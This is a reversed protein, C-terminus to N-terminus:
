IKMKSGNTSLYDILELIAHDKPHKAFSQSIDVGFYEGEPAKGIFAQFTSNNFTLLTGQELFDIKKEEEKQRLETTRRKQALPVVQNVLGQLIQQSSGQLIFPHKKKKKSDIFM